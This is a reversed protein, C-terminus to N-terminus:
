AIAIELQTLLEGLVTLYQAGLNVVMFGLTSTYRVYLKFGLFCSSLANSVCMVAFVFGLHKFIINKKVCIGWCLTSGWLCFVGSESLVM